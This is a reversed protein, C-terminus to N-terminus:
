GVGPPRVGLCDLEEDEEDETAKSAGLWHSNEASWILWQGEKRSPIVWACISSFLCLPQSKM